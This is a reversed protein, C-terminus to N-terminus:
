LTGGDTTGIAAATGQTILSNIAGTTMTYFVSSGALHTTPPSNEAGRQFGWPSSGDAKATVIMYENDIVVRFVGDVSRLAFPAPASVPYSEITGPAPTTTIPALLSCLPIPRGPSASNVILEVAM